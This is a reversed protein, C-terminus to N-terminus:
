GFHQRFFSAFSEHVGLWPIAAGVCLGLVSIAISILSFKRVLAPQRTQQYVLPLNVLSSSISTLITAYGATAPSIRNGAALAAATATTSASSVMGGVISIFLFGMSGFFRQALTGTCALLFFLVAFKIVRRLSVPSTLRLPESHAEARGRQSWVALVTAIIMAALPAVASAVAKPAFIALIAINRVFMSINTLLLVAIAQSMLETRARFQGALEVVAATSNVLGGLVASYYMGRTSYVRLLVYNLFGIGAIVVIIVWFQQPNILQWPDVFRNPLLPFIVVSLLCLLVASRIEEPRLAGAFRELELK